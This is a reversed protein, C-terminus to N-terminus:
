LFMLADEYESRMLRVTHLFTMRNM